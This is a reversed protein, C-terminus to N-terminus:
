LVWRAKPDAAVEEEACVPLRINDDDLVTDRAESPREAEPLREFIWVHPLGNVTLQWECSGRSFYAQLYRTSEHEPGRGFMTRYLVVHIYEDSDYEHGISEAPGEYFERLVFAYAVAVLPPKEGEPVQRELWGAAKELGEGWGLKLSDPASYLPNFYTLYYPHIYSIDWALVAALLVGLVVVVQSPNWRPVVRVILHALWILGGAALIDTAMFGFLFYRDAKQGSFSLLFGYGLACVLLFLILNRGFFRPLNKKDGLILGALGLVAFVVTVPTVRFWWERPYYVPDGGGKGVEVESANLKAYKSIISLPETPAFVTPWLVASVAAMLLVLLLVRRGRGGFGQASVSDGFRKSFGAALVVLPVWLAFFKSLVALAAFAASIYLYRRSRIQWALVVLLLTVLMFGAQLADTHVIRSHAIHFPDLALLVGALAAFQWGALRGLIVVAILLLVSVPIAIAAQSAQWSHFQDAIGAFLMTTVGPQGGSFTMGPDATALGVIYRHARGRWIPEDNIIIGGLDALRPWLVLLVVGLAILISQSSKSTM